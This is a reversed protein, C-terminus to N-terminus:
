LCWGYITVLSLDIGFNRSLTSKKVVIQQLLFLLVVRIKLGGLAMECSRASRLQVILALSVNMSIYTARNGIHLLGLVSFVSYLSGCNPAMQYAGWAM